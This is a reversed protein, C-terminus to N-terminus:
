AKPMEKLQKLLDMQYDDKSFSALNYDRSFRIADFNCSEVCQGCLSCTTFDLTYLTPSKRTAGEAKAGDVDICASPCARKCAMCVICKPLGTADDRVLEIHGRYRASMKITEYPYQVTVPKRFMHKFTIWMGVALSWLGTFIDKLYKIM